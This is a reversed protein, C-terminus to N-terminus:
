KAPRTLPEMVRLHADLRGARLSEQIHNVRMYRAGSFVEMTLGERLYGEYLEQAGRRVDWQPDFDPLATALKGFDVRYCRADPGGEPAYVVKSGPVVSAVIEAVDRVQYNQDNRGINFAQNHVLDRPARLVALFARSVDEVHVLPRWPTGDSLILVEGTLVAFGVLNNVVLDVRLRPSLGYVTANRMFIPSFESTALTAVDQEVLVKSEGYPTVPNFPANEALMLEASATGYLSCSSAFIFRTVGAQRALRALRVSALHNIEYTLKPNLNGVPDNSIGALHVVADFGELDSTEVDRIDKRISPTPDSWSGFDSDAYLDNDLGVVEVGQAVLYPTMVAGIYGRNGTLLVKM